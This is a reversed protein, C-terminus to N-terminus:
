PSYSLWAREFPVSSSRFANRVSEADRAEILFVARKGNEAAHIALITAERVRLCPRLSAVRAAVEERSVPPDFGCEIIVHPM